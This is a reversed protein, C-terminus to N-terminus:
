SIYPVPVDNQGGSPCLNVAETSVQNNQSNNKFTDSMTPGQTIVTTKSQYSLLTQKSIFMTTYTYQPFLCMNNTLTHITYLVNYSTIFNTSLITYM